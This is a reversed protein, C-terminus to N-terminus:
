PWAIGLRDPDWSNQHGGDIRLDGSGPPLGLMSSPVGGDVMPSDDRPDFPGEVFLGVGSLNLGCSACFYYVLFM